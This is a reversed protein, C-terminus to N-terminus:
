PDVQNLTCLGVEPNPMGTGYSDCRTFGSQPTYARGFGVCEETTM